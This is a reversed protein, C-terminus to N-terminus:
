FGVEVTGGYYLDPDGYFHEDGYYAAGLDFVFGRCIWHGPKWKRVIGRILALFEPTLGSPGYYLGPDGYEHDTGYLPSAGTVPHTGLPFRVWFQTEYAATGDPGPASPRFEVLIGPYGAIAFQREITSEVAAFQWANWRDLLRRKYGGTTEIPYRELLSEKGILPLADEPQQANVLWASKRGQNLAESLATFPVGILVGALAEGLTGEAFPAFTRLIRTVYAHFTDAM